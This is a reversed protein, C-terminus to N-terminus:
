LWYCSVFFYIRSLIDILVHVCGVSTAYLRRLCDSFAHSLMVKTSQLFILILVGFFVLFLFLRILFGLRYYPTLFLFFYM